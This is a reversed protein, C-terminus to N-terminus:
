MPSCQRNSLVDTPSIQKSQSSSPAAVTQSKSDNRPAFRRPLRERLLNGRRGAKATSRAIVVFHLMESFCPRKVDYQQFWLVSCRRKKACDEERTDYCVAAAEFFEQRIFCDVIELAPSDQIAIVVSPRLQFFLTHRGCVARQNRRNLVM